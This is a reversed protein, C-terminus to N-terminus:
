AATTRETLRERAVVLGIGIAIVLSAGVHVPFTFVADASPVNVYRLGAIALFAIGFAAYAHLASAAIGPLRDAYVGTIGGALLGAVFGVFVGIIGIGPAEGAGLLEITAAGALLFTTIATGLGLVIARASM